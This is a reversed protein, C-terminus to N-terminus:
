IKDLISIHFDIISAMDNKLLIDIKENTLLFNDEYFQKIKTENGENFIDRANLHTEDIFDGARKIGMWTDSFKGLRKYKKLFVNFSACPFHLILPDEKKGFKRRGETWISHVDAMHVSKGHLNICSKGNQYYKFFKDGIWQNEKILQRQERSFVWHKFRFFNIKFINSSRFISTADGHRYIAEYNLLTVANIANFQLNSFYDQINHNNPYFLEDLDIHLLWDMGDQKASEYAVLFNLEQRVMVEENILAWKASTKYDSKSNWEELLSEDRTRLSVNKYQNLTRITEPDNDDIFIYFRDFGIKTHYDIFETISDQADAVTAVIAIRLKKIVQQEM